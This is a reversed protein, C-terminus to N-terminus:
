YQYLTEAVITMSWDSGNLNLVNGKDDQLSVRMRSINVPGFYTRTNYMLTSGLDIIMDGSENLTKKIPIIAFVDTTTPGTTRYKYSTRRSDLIQNISYVQAQTLKRPM